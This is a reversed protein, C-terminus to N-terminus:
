FGCHMAIAFPKRNNRPTFPSSLSKSKYALYKVMLWKLPKHCSSLIKWIQITGPFKSLSTVLICWHWLQPSERYKVWLTPITVTKLIEKLLLCAPFPPCWCGHSFGPCHGFLYLYSHRLVDSVPSCPAITSLGPFNSGLVSSWELLPKHNRPPHPWSYEHYLECLSM